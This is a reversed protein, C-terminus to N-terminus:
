RFKLLAIQKWSSPFSSVSAISNQSNTYSDVDWDDFPIDVNTTHSVPNCNGIRYENTDM